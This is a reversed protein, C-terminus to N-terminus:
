AEDSLGWDISTLWEGLAELHQKENAGPQSQVNSSWGVFRIHDYSGCRLENKTQNRSFRIVVTQEYRVRLRQELENWVSAGNVVVLRIGSQKLQRVLHPLGDDILRDKVTKELQSWKTSTAWQVLDVHCASDDYFSVGLGTQLISDLPDFWTRYATERRQFYTHCARIVADVQEDNLEEHTETGLSELTELRRARGSLLRGNVEFEINSPNIGLTAVKAITSDGFSIVPTSGSVISCDTPIPRRVM